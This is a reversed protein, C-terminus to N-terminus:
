HILKLKSRKEARDEEEALADAVKLYYTFTEDDQAIDMVAAYIAAAFANQEDSPKGDCQGKFRISSCDDEITVILSVRNTDM